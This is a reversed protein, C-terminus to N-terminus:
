RASFLSRTGRKRLGGVPAEAGRPGGYRGKGSTSNTIREPMIEFDDEEEQVDHRSRVHPTRIHERDEGSSPSMVKRPIQNNAPYMASGTRVAHARDSREYTLSGRKNGFLLDLFLKGTWGVGLGLVCGIGIVGAIFVYLPYFVGLVSGLFGLPAVVFTHGLLRSTATIPYFVTGLVQVILSLLNLLLPVPTVVLTIILYFPYVIVGLITRATSTSEAATNPIPSPIQPLHYPLHYQSQPQSRLDSHLSSSLSHIHNLPLHGLIETDDSRTLIQWIVYFFVVYGVVAIPSMPEDRKRRKKKKEGGVALGTEWEEPEERFVEEDGSLTFSRADASRLDRHSRTSRNSNTSLRHTRSPREGPALDHQSAARALSSSSRTREKPSPRYANASEKRSPIVRSASSM